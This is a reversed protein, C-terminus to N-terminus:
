ELLNTERRKVSGALWIDTKFIILVSVFVFTLGRGGGEVCVCVCLCGFVKGQTGITKERISWTEITLDTFSEILSRGPSNEANGIVKFPM